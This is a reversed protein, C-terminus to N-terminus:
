LKGPVCGSKSMVFQNKFAEAKPAFLIQSGTQQLRENGTVTEQGAGTAAM